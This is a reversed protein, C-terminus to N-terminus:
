ETFHCAVQHGEGLETMAPPQLRCIEQAWPCRSSFACGVRLQLPSPIEGKLTELTSRHAKSDPIELVSQFLTVTYPHRPRDLLTETPGYEVVQGLYMVAIFDSLYGVASLSHSIFVYSLHHEKQLDQLLLMIQAQVSMDLASLVEDCVVLKPRVSLARAIMVRQQQGGSLEYPFAEAHARDLGVSDLLEFVRRSRESRNGLRHVILPDEINQGVTTRLNLAAIPDQFIIQMDKRKQRLARKTLQHIDVGDFQIRGSEPTLLGIACRGLTSKGSGSEGVVGLTQGRSLTFSVNRVAHLRRSGIRFYKDVSALSLLPEDLM